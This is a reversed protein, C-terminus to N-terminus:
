IKGVSRYKVFLSIKTAHFGYGDVLEFLFQDGACGGFEDLETQSQGFEFLFVLFEKGIQQKFRKIFTAIHFTYFVFNVQLEAGDVGVAKVVNFFTDSFNQAQDFFETSIGEFLFSFHLKKEIKTKLQFIKSWGNFLVCREYVDIASM